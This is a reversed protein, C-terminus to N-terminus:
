FKALSNSKSALKPHSRANEEALRALIFVRECKSSALEGVRSSKKERAEGFFFESASQARSNVLERLKKKKLKM